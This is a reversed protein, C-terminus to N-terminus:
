SSRGFQQKNTWVCLLHFCLSSLLLCINEERNQEIREIRTFTLYNKEWHFLSFATGVLSCALHEMLILLPRSAQTHLWWLSYLDYQGTFWFAPTRLATKVSLQLIHRNELNTFNIIVNQTFESSSILWCFIINRISGRLAKKVKKKNMHFPPLLLMTNKLNPTM